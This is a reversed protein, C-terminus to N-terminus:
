EQQLQAQISKIEQDILPLNYSVLKDLSKELALKIEADIFFLNFCFITYSESKGKEKKFQEHQQIMLDLTQQEKELQEDQIPQIQSKLRGLEHQASQIQDKWAAANQFRGTDIALQKHRQWSKLKHELETISEDLHISKQQKGFLTEQM